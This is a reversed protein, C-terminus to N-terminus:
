RRDSVGPISPRRRRRARIERIALVLNRHRSREVRLVRLLRDGQIMLLAGAIALPMGILVTVAEYTTSDPFFHAGIPVAYGAGMLKMGGVRWARNRTMM